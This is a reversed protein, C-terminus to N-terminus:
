SRDADIVAAFATRDLLPPTCYYSMSVGFGGVYRAFEDAFMEPLAACPGGQDNICPRGRLARSVADGFARRGDPGLLLGWEVHGIEHYVLFRNSPYTFATTGADLHIGWRGDVGSRSISCSTAPALCVAVHDDFSVMGALQQLLSRTAPTAAGLDVQVAARARPPLDFLWTTGHSPSGSYDAMAFTAVLRATATAADTGVGVPFPNLAVAFTLLLALPWVLSVPHVPRHGTAPPASRQSLNSDV